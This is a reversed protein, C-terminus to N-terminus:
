VINKRETFLNLRARDVEMPTKHPLVGAKRYVFLAPHKRVGILSSALVLPAEM